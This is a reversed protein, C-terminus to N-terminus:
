ILSFIELRENKNREAVDKPLYIKDIEYLGHILQKVNEKSPSHIDINLRQCEKRLLSMPVDFDKSFRECFHVVIRDLAEIPTYKELQIEEKKSPEKITESVLLRALAFFSADVKEGSKASTFYYPLNKKTSLANFDDDSIKRNDIMDCKNGLIVFPIKGTISEVKPIWYDLLSTYTERRTIDTVLIAGNAGKFSKAHILRYEKEGLIDWIMLTMHYVKEGYILSLDKKTTKTGITAIYKDEFIDFVFRRVLSTKGVGCDGLLCIKKVLNVAM